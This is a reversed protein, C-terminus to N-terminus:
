SKGALRKLGRYIRFPLLQRYYEIQADKSQVVQGWFADKDRIVQNLFADREQVVQALFGDKAQSLRETESLYMGADPAKSPTVCFNVLPRIVNPWQLATQLNKFAAAYAGRGGPRLMITEIAQAMGDVNGPLVTLGLNEQKVWDAMADGDTTVIPVGAWICDLV